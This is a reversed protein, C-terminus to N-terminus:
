RRFTRDMPLPEPWIPVDTTRGRRHVCVQLPGAGNRALAAMIDDRRRTARGDISLIVDGIRLGARAAPSNAAVSTLRRGEQGAVVAHESRVGFWAPGAPMAGFHGSREPGSQQDQAGAIWADRQAALVAVAEDALSRLAAMEVIGQTPATDIVCLTGLAYGDGDVLCAAAYSRVHPAETVFPHTRFRPDNTADAIVMAGSPEGIAHHCLGMARPIQRLDTGIANTIWQHDRGIFSLM